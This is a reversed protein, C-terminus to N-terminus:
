DAHHKTAEKELYRRLIDMDDNKELLRDKIGELKESIFNSLLQGALICGFATITMEDIYNYFYNFLPPYFYICFFLFFALFLLITSYKSLIGRHRKFRGIKFLTDKVLAEDNHLWEELEEKRNIGKEDIAFSGIYASNDMIAQLIHGYENIPEEVDSVVSDIVGSLTKMFDSIAILSSTVTIAVVLHDWTDTEISKKSSAVFFLFVVYALMFINNTDKRM